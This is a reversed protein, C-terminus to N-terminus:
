LYWADIVDLTADYIESGDAYKPRNTQGRAVNFASVAVNKNKPFADMLKKADKSKLFKDKKQELSLVSKSKGVGIKRCLTKIEAVEADTLDAM